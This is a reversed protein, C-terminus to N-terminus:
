STLRKPNSYNFRDEMSDYLAMKLLFAVVYIRSRNLIMRKHGCKYPVSLKVKSSFTVQM